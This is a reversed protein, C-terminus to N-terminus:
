QINGQWIQPYTVNYIVDPYGCYPCCQKIIPCIMTDYEDPVLIAYGRHCQSCTVQVERM